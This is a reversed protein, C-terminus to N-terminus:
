GDYLTTNRLVRSEGANVSINLCIADRLQGLTETGEVEVEKNQTLQSTQVTVRAWGPEARRKGRHKRTGKDRKGGTHPGPLLSRVSRPPRGLKGNSVTYLLALLQPSFFCYACIAFGSLMIFGISLSMDAVVRQAIDQEAPPPSSAVLSQLVFSPPAPPLDVAPVDVKITEDVANGMQTRGDVTGSLLGSTFYHEAYSPFM